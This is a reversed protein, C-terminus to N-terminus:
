GRFEVRWHDRHASVAAERVTTPAARERRNTEQDELVKEALLVQDDNMPGSAGYRTEIADSTIRSIVFEGGANVAVDVGRAPTWCYPQESLVLVASHKVKRRAHAPRRARRRRSSSARWTTWRARSAFELGIAAREENSAVEPLTRTKDDFLGGAISDRAAVPTVDASRFVSHRPKYCWLPSCRTGSPPHARCLEADAQRVIGASRM